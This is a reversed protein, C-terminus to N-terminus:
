RYKSNAFVTNRSYMIRKNLVDLVSSRVSYNFVRIHMHYVCMKVYYSVSAVRYPVVPSGFSHFTASYIYM